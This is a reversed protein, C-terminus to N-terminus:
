EVTRYYDYESIKRHDDRHLSDNISCILVFSQFRLYLRLKCNCAIKKDAIKMILLKKHVQISVCYTRLMKEPSRDALIFPSPLLYNMTLYTCLNM